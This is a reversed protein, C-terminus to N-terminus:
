SAVINIAWFIGLIAGVGAVLILEVICVVLFGMKLDVREYYGYDSFSAIFLTIFGTVVFWIIIWAIIHLLLNNM